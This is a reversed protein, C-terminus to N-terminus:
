FLQVLITISAVHCFGFAMGRCRPYGGLYFFAHALRAVFFLVAAAETYENLNNTLLAVLILITFLPLNELMNRQARQVRGELVSEVRAEDRNGASWQYGGEDNKRAIVLPINLLPTILGCM